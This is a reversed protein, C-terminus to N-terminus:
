DSYFFSLRLKSKKLRSHKYSTEFDLHM